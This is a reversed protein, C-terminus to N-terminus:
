SCGEFSSRSLKRPRVNVYEVERKM